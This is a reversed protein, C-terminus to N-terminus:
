AICSLLACLPSGRVQLRLQTLRILAVTWHVTTGAFVRALLAQAPVWTSCPRSPTTTVIWHITVGNLPRAMSPAGQVKLRFLITFRHLAFRLAFRLLSKKLM